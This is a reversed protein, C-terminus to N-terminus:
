IWPRYTAAQASPDQQKHPHQNARGSKAAHFVEFQHALTALESPTVPNHACTAGTDNNRGYLTGTHCCWFMEDAGAKMVPETM